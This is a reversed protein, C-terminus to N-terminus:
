NKFQSTICWVMFRRRFVEPETFMYDNAQCLNIFMESSVATELNKLFRNVMFDIFDEMHNLPMRRLLRVEAMYEMSPSQMSNRLVQYYMNVM